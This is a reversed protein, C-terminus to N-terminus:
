DTLPTPRGHPFTIAQGITLGNARSWGASTELVMDVPKAPYVRVPDQGPGPPPVRRNIGIVKGDALWIIDIPIKMGKMWFPRFKKTAYVFLMGRNLPMFERGGLGLSQSARTLALEVTLTKGALNLEIMRGDSFRGEGAAPAALLLILGLAVIVPLRKSM